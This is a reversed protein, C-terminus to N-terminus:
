AKLIRDLGAIAIMDKWVGGHVTHAAHEVAGNPDIGQGKNKLDSIVRALLRVAVRGAVAKICPLKRDGRVSKALEDLITLQHQHFEESPALGGQIIDNETTVKRRKRPPSGGLSHERLLGLQTLIADHRQNEM